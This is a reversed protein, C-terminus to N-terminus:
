GVLSCVCREKFLWGWFTMYNALLDKLNKEECETMVVQYFEAQTDFDIYQDRLDTFMDNMKLDFHAHAAPAEAWSVLLNGIKTKKLRQVIPLFGNWSGTDPDNFLTEKWGGEIDLIGFWPEHLKYFSQELGGNSKYQNFSYEFAQDIPDKVIALEREYTQILQLRKFCNCVEMIQQAQGPSSHAELESVMSLIEFVDGVKLTHATALVDKLIRKNVNANCTAQLAQLGQVVELM